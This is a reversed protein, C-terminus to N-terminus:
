RSRSYSPRSAWRSEDSFCEHATLDEGLGLALIAGLRRRRRSGGGHPSRRWDEAQLEEGRLRWLPCGPQSQEPRPEARQRGGVEGDRARGVFTARLAREPRDPLEAAVEAGRHVDRRVERTDPRAAFDEAPEEGSVPAEVDTVQHQDAPVQRRSHALPRAVEGVGAVEHREDAAFVAVLEADLDRGVRLEVRVRGAGVGIQRAELPLRFGAGAGREGLVEVVRVRVDVEHFRQERRPTVRGITGPM